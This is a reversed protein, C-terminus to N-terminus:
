ERGKPYAKVYISNGDTGYTTEAKIGRAVAAKYIYSRMSGLQVTFDRGRELRHTNGDLIREWDYGTPPTRGGPFPMDTVTEM